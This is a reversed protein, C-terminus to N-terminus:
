ILFSLIEMNDLYNARYNRWYYKAVTKLQEARGRWGRARLKSKNARERGKNRARKAIKISGGGWGQM